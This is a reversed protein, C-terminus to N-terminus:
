LAVEVGYTSTLRLLTQDFNPTQWNAGIRAFPTIGVSAIHWCVGISPGFIFYSYGARSASEVEGNIVSYAPGALLAQLYGLHFNVEGQLGISHRGRWGARPLIFVGVENHAWHYSGVDAGVVLAHLSDETELARFSYGILGGPHTFNHGFYAGELSHRTTARRDDAPTGSPSTTAGTGPNSTSPTPEAPAAESTPPMPPAEEAQATADVAVAMVMALSCVVTSSFSLRFYM